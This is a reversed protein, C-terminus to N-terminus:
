EPNSRGAADAAQTAQQQGAADGLFHRALALVRYPFPRPLPGGKAALSENSQISAAAREAAKAFAAKAEDAKGQDLFVLGAVIAEAGQAALLKAESREPPEDGPPTRKAAESVWYGLKGQFAIRKAPQDEALACILAIRAADLWNDRTFTAVQYAAGRTVIDFAEAARAKATTRDAKALAYDALRRVAVAHAIWMHAPVERNNTATTIALDELADSLRNEMTAFRARQILL